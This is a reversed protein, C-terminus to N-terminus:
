ALIRVEQEFDDAEAQSTLVYTMAALGAMVILFLVMWPWLRSSNTNNNSNRSRGATAPPASDEQEALTSTEM